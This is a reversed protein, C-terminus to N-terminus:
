EETKYKMDNANRISQYKLITFHKIVTARLVHCLHSCSVRLNDYKQLKKVTPKYNRNFASYIDVTHNKIFTKKLVTEDNKNHM